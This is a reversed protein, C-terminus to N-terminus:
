GNSSTLAGSRVESPSVAFRRKFRAAFRSPSEYGVDLAIRGIADDTVQLLALARSMRVDTLVQQFSMGLKQLHRRLTAESMGVSAAADRAQWNRTLDQLLLSRVRQAVDAPGSHSFKVGKHALWILVERERNEVIKPPLRRPDSVAAIARDFADLFEREVDAIPHADRLIPVEAYAAAIEEILHSSPVLFSSVFAGDAPTSVLDFAQGAAVVVAHGAQLDFHLAGRTMQKHGQRILVITPFETMVSKLALRGSHRATAASGVSSSRIPM